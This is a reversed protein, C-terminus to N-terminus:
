VQPQKNSKTKQSINVCINQRCWSTQSPYSEMIRICTHGESRLKEVFKDEEAQRRAMDEYMLKQKCVDKMCWKFKPNNIGIIRCCDHNNDKLFKCLEKMILKDNMKGNQYVSNTNYTCINKMCWNLKHEKKANENFVIEVCKHNKEELFDVVQKIITPCTNNKQM